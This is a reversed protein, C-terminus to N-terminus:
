QDFRMVYKVAMSFVMALFTVKSGDRLCMLVSFCIRRGLSDPWSVKWQDIRVVYKVAM